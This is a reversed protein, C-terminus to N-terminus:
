INLLVVCTFAGLLQSVNDTGGFLKDYRASYFLSHCKMTTKVNMKKLKKSDSKIIDLQRARAM